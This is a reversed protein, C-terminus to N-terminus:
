CRMSSRSGTGKISVVSSVHWFLFLVIVLDDICGREATWHYGSSSEVTEERPQDNSECQMFEFSHCNSKKLILISIIM